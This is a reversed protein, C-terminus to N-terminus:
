IYDDVSVHTPTCAYVYVYQARVCMNSHVCIYRGMCILVHRCIYLYVCVHVHACAYKHGYKIHMRTDIFTRIYLMIYLGTVIDPPIQIDCHKYLGCYKYKHTRQCGVNMNAHMYM